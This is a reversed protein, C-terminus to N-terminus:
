AESINVLTPVIHAVDPAIMLAGIIFSSFFALSSVSLIWFFVAVLSLRRSSACATLSFFKMPSFSVALYRFVIIIYTKGAAFNVSESDCYVM